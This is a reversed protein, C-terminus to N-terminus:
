GNARRSLLGWLVALSSNRGLDRERCTVFFEMQAEADVVPVSTCGFLSRARGM